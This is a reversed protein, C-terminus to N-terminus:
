VSAANAPLSRLNRHPQFKPDSTVLNVGSLARFYVAHSKIFSDHDGTHGQCCKRAPLRAGLHEALGEFVLLDVGHIYTYTCVYILTYIHKKYINM